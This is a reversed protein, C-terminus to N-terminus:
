LNGGLVPPNVQVFHLDMEGKGLRAIMKHSDPHATKKGTAISQQAVSYVM